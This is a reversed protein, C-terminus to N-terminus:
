ARVECVEQRHKGSPTKPLHEVLHLHLQAGPCVTEPFTKRLLDLNNRTEDGFGSGPTVFLHIADLETQRFQFSGVGKLGSVHRVFYSSYLRRGDPALLTDGIRGIDMRMLPYGRGCACGGAMPAGYDGIAYRIIPMARNSFGTLVIRYPLSREEGDWHAGDAMGEPLLDPDDALPLFEAYAAHTLLHMNGCECETAVGPVERSGYQDHVRCAFAKEMAERQPPHLRGASTLVGCISRAANAAVESDRLGLCYDALDTLVAAYGYLFVRRYRGIVRLWDELEKKGYRYANLSVTGALWPKLRGPLETSACDRPNGWVNVIMDSPRWGAFSLCFLWDADMAEKVGM